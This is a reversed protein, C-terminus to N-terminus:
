NAPSVGLDEASVTLGAFEQSSLNAIKLGRRNCFHYFIALYSEGCRANWNLGMVAAAVQISAADPGEIEIFTGYPMEDLVVDVVDLKYMTRYKEYMVAVEYGLAELLHRTTEFDSVEVELEQRVSM